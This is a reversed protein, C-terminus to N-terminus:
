FATGTTHGRWAFSIALAAPVILEFLTGGWVTFTQNGIASFLLHGAEHTVLHANDLSWPGQFYWWTMLSLALGWGIVAVKSVPQWEYDPHPLPIFTM